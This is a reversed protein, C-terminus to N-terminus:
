PQYHNIRAWGALEEETKCPILEGSQVKKLIADVSEKIKKPLKVNSGETDCGVANEKIGSVSVGPKWNGEIFMKIENYIIKDVNRVSSAVIQDPMEGNQNPGVGFAYKGTEKAAQFIGLGTPGALNQIFDAGQHYMSFALERGKEPNKFTDAVEILMKVNPNVYRAGAEFGVAGERLTPVDEGLIAGIIGDKTGFGAIVGALFTQEAWETVVTHVNSIEVPCDLLSIKQDPFKEAIKRIPKEQSATFAIILDYEGSEAFQRDMREFDEKTDPELYDFEIGFDVRAKAAGAYIMDNFNRDRLGATGLILGIKIRGLESDMKRQWAVKRQRGAATYNTAKRSRTAEPAIGMWERYTKSFYSPNTYGVAYAIEYIKMDTNLLLNKAKDLRYSILYTSFKEGTKEKFLRSLHEPSRYVHHAVENLSIDKAYNAHIYRIAEWICQSHGFHNEGYIKEVLVWILPEVIHLDVDKMYVSQQFIKKMYMM